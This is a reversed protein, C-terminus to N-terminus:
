ETQIDSTFLGYRGMTDLFEAVDKRVLEESVGFHDSVTKVVKAENHGNRLHEWILSGTFNLRLLRGNRIDLITGGDESHTSRIYNSISRMAAVGDGGDPDLAACQKMSRVEPSSFASFKRSLLLWAPIEKM